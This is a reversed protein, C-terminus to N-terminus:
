QALADRILAVAAPFNQVVLAADLRLVRYGFRALVRDRRTDATRREAHYGGDVEVILRAAPALFDAIFRGALPVQRRFQVGLKRGSLASWLRAESPTLAHRMQRARDALVASRQPAIPPRARM